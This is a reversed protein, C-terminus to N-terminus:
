ESKETIIIKIEAELNHEFILKVSFEGIEKLPEELKIQSKKVTYGMEKLRDAIKQANVAEFLQGEDGVKLALQVEMDDLQSAMEQYKVLSEEAIKEQLETQM